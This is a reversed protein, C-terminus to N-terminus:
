EQEDDGVVIAGRPRILRGSGGPTSVHATRVLERLQKAETMASDTELVAFVERRAGVAKVIRELAVASFSHTEGM